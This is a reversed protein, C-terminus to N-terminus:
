KVKNSQPKSKLALEFHARLNIIPINAILIKRRKRRKVPANLINGDTSIGLHYTFM